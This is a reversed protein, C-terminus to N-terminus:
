ETNQMERIIWSIMVSRSCEARITVVASLRQFIDSQKKLFILPTIDDLNIIANLKDALVFEEAPTDNSSFMIDEGTAGIADSLMLETYSSCDCGCGYERLINILFPNPTAKVAFYERYGKNWSFAEKLAKMNERMGKEDYLHFPTPYTKIIEDLQAKTVFPEKKM